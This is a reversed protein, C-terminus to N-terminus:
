RPVKAAMRRQECRDRNVYDGPWEDLCSNRITNFDAEGIGLAPGTRGTIAAVAREQDSVCENFSPSDEVFRRKCLTNIAQNAAIPDVVTSSAAATEAHEVERIAVQADNLMRIANELQKTPEVVLPQNISLIYRVRGLGDLAADAAVEAKAYADSYADPAYFVRLENCALELNQGAFDTRERWDEDQFLDLSRAEVLLDRLSNSADTCDMTVDLLLSGSPGRRSSRPSKGLTKRDIVVPEGETNKKLKISGAVESLSQQAVAPAALIVLIMAVLAIKTWRM